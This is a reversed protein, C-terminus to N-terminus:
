LSMAGHATATWSWNHPLVIGGTSPPTGIAADSRRAIRSQTAHPVGSYGARDGFRAKARQGKQNRLSVSAQRARMPGPDRRGVDGARQRYWRGISPPRGPPYHRQLLVASGHALNFLERRIRYTGGRTGRGVCRRAVLAIRRALARRAYEEDVVVDEQWGLDPLRKGRRTGLDCRRPRSGGTEVM